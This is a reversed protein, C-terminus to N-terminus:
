RESVKKALAKLANALVMTMPGRNLLGPEQFNRIL